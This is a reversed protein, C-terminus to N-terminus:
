SKSLIYSFTLEPDKKSQWRPWDGRHTQKELPETTTIWKRLVRRKGQGCLSVALDLDHCPSQVQPGQGLYRHTGQNIHYSLFKQPSLTVWTWWCLDSITQLNSSSLFSGSLITLMSSCDASPLNCPQQGLPPAPLLPARHSCPDQFLYMLCAQLSARSTGVSQDQAGPLTWLSFLSGPGVRPRGIGPSVLVKFVM